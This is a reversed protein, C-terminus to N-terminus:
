APQKSVVAELDEVHAKAAGLTEQALERAAADGTPLAFVIQEIAAVEGHALELSEVALFELSLDNKDTFEMPFQGVRIAGHRSAILEAIRTATSKQDFVIARLTRAADDDGTMGPSLAGIEDLYQPLSRWQITLLRNLLEVDASM